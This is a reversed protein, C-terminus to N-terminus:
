LDSADGVETGEGCIILVIVSARQSTNRFGLLRRIRAMKSGGTLLGYCLTNSSKGVARRFESCDGSINTQTGFRMFDTVLSSASKM